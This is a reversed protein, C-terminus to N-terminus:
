SQQNLQCPGTCRNKFPNHIEKCKGNADSPGSSSSALKCGALITEESRTRLLITVKPKEWKNKM